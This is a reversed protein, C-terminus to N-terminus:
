RFRWNQFIGLKGLIFGFIAGGLHGVLSIGPVFGILVNILLVSFLQQKIVSTQNPLIAYLYAFLGMIVGSAGLYYSAGGFLITAGATLIILIIYLLLFRKEGMTLELFTGIQYLALMNFLLHMVSGHMFAHLIIGPITPQPPYLSFLAYFVTQNFQTLIFLGICIYIILKTINAKHNYHIQFM